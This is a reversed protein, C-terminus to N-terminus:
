DFLINAHHELHDSIFTSVFFYSHDYGDHCRFEGTAKNSTFHQSLSDPMLLHYFNDDKGQDILLKTPFGYKKLLISPDYDHWLASDEGLYASFQKQGWESKTPNSIPSFASM